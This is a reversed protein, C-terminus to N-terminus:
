TRKRTKTLSSQTEANLGRLCLAEFTRDSVFNAGIASAPATLEIAISPKATVVLQDRSGTLIAM